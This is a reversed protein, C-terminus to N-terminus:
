ENLTQYLTQLAKEESDAQVGNRVVPTGSVVSQWVSVHLVIAEQFYM